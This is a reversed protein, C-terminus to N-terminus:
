QNLNKARLNLVAFAVSECPITCHFKNLHGILMHDGFILQFFFKKLTTM